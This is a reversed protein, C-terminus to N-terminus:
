FKNDWFREAVVLGYIARNLLGVAGLFKQYEEPIEVQIEEDIGAKLFVQEVDFHRLERDKAATTVLLIRISATPPTPLDKETYHM